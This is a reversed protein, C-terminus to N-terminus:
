LEIGALVEENVKYNYKKLISDKFEQVKDLV